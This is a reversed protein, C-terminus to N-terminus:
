SCLLINRERTLTWPHAPWTLLPLESGGPPEPVQSGETKDSSGGHEEDTQEFSLRLNTQERVQVFPLSVLGPCSYTKLLTPLLPVEWEQARDM